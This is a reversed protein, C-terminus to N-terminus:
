EKELIYLSATSSSTCAYWTSKYVYFNDEYYGGLPLLPICGETTYTSSSIVTTSIYITYDSSENILLLYKRGLYENIATVGTTSVTVTDKPKAIIEGGLIYVPILISMILISIFINKKM